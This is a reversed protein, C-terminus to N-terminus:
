PTQISNQQILTLKNELYQKYIGPFNLAKAYAQEALDLKGDVFYIDGIKVWAFTYRPEIELIKQFANLANTHDSKEIYAIGLNELIKINLPNVTTGEQWTQIAQDIYGARMQADGLNRYMTASDPNQEVSAQWLTQNSYWAPIRNWTILGAITILIASLLYLFKKHIFATKSLWVTGWVIVFGSALYAYRESFIISRPFFQLIPILSVIAALLAFVLYNYQKIHSKKIWLYGSLVLTSAGVIFEPSFLSPHLDIYQALDHYFFANFTSMITHNVSPPSPLFMLLFYKGILGIRIVINDILSDFLQPKDASLEVIGFRALWYGVNPIIFPLLKRNFRYNKNTLKEYLYLIMPLTLTLEYSFYAITATLVAFLYFSQKGQKKYRIYLLITIWFLLNGITDFSATIWLVAESNIPHLGFLLGAIIGFRKNNTQTAVLAYIILSTVIHVIMAQLHYGIPNLGWMLFSVGYYISRIPRFAHGHGEPLNTLVETWTAPFQHLQTWNVIFDYDDWVFGNTLSRIHVLGIVLIIVVIWPLHSRLQKM